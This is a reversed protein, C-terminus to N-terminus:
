MFSISMLACTDLKSTNDRKRQTKEPEALPQLVATPLQDFLVTQVCPQRKGGAARQIVTSSVVCRVSSVGCDELVVVHALNVEACVDVTHGHVVCRGKHHYYHNIITNM